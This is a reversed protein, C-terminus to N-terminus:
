YRVRHRKEPHKKHEKKIFAWAEEHTQFVKITKYRGGEKKQAHYGNRLMHETIAIGLVKCASRFGTDHRSYGLHLAEHGLINEQEKKSLGLFREAVHLTVKAPTQGLSLGVAWQHADRLHTIYALPKPKKEIVVDIDIRDILSSKWIGKARRRFRQELEEEVTHSIVKKKIPATSKIVPKTKRILRPKAKPRPKSAVRKAFVRHSRAIAGGSHYKKCKRCYYAM